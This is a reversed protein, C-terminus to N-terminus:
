NPRPARLHSKCSLRTERRRGSVILRAKVCLTTSICVKIGLKKDLFKCHRVLDESIELLTEAVYEDLSGDEFDAHFRNVDKM